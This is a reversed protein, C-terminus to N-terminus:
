PKLDIKEVLMRSRKLTGRGPKFAQREAVTWYMICAKIRGLIWDERRLVRLYSSPVLRTGKCM